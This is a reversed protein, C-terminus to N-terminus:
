ASLFIPGPIWANDGGTPSKYAYRITCKGNEHAMFYHINKYSSLKYPINSPLYNIPNNNELLICGNSADRRLCYENQEVRKCDSAASQLLVTEESTIFDAIQIKGKIEAGVMQKLLSKLQCEFEETFTGQVIQNQENEICTTM